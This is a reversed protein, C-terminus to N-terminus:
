ADQKLFEAPSFVYNTPLECNLSRVTKSATASKKPPSGPWFAASRKKLAHANMLCWPQRMPMCAASMSFAFLVRREVSVDPDVLEAPQITSTLSQGGALLDDGQHGGNGGDDGDGGSSRAPAHAGHHRAPVPRHPRRRWSSKVEGNEQREM